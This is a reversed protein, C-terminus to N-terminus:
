RHEGRDRRQVPHQVASRAPIEGLLQGSADDIVICQPRGQAEARAIAAALMAMVGQHNMIKASETNTM